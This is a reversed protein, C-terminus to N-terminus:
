FHLGAVATASFAGATGDADECGPGPPTDPSVLTSCSKLSRHLVFLDGSLNVGVSFLPTLFYDLGSALRGDFGAVSDVEARGGRFTGLSVYGAGLTAYPELAGFPAHIGAEFGLSWLNYRPMPAYRFRAGLTVFLLRAGVGAGTVLGTQDPKMYGPEFLKSGLAVYTVGVDANLWVYQLGRGSDEQDARKLEAETSARTATGPQAGPAPATEIAPPPALGGASLTSAPAPAPSPAPAGPSPAASPTAPAFQALADGSWALAFLWTVFAGPPLRM